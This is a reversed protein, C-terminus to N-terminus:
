RRPVDAPESGRNGAARGAPSARIVDAWSSGDAYAGHALVVNRVAEAHARKESGVVALAGAAFLASSFGRRGLRASSSSM